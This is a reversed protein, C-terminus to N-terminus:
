VRKATSNYFDVSMKLWGRNMTFDYMGVQEGTMLDEYVHRGPMETTVLNPREAVRLKFVTMDLYMYSRYVVNITNTEM